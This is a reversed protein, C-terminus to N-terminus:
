ANRELKELEERLRALEFVYSFDEAQLMEIQVQLPRMQREIERKQEILPAIEAQARLVQARLETKHAEIERARLRTSEHRAKDLLVPITVERADQLERYLRVNGASKAAQIRDPLEREMAELQSVFASAEQATGFDAVTTLNQIDLTETM